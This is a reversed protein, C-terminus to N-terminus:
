YGQRALCSTFFVLVKDHSFGGACHKDLNRAARSVLATAAAAAAATGQQGEDHIGTSPRLPPFPLRPSPLRLQLSQLLSPSFTLPFGLFDM